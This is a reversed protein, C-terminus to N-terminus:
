VSSRSPRVKGGQIKLASTKGQHHQHTQPTANMKTDIWSISCSKYLSFLREVFDSIQGQGKISHGQYKLMIFGDDINVRVSIKTEIRDITWSNFHFVNKSSQCASYRVSPRVFRCFPKYLLKLGQQVWRSCFFIM